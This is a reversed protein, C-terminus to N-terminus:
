DASLWDGGAVRASGLAGIFSDDALTAPNLFEQPFPYAHWSDKYTAANNKIEGLVRKELPVFIDAHSITILQDNFITSPVASFFTTNADANGQDLYNAQVPPNALTVVSRTQGELAPGASFVIAIASNAVGNLNLQPVTESNIPATMFGSSVAYWLPEGNGDVLKGTGLSRWPLRGIRLADTNCNSREQGENATGISAPDEPCPLRGPVTTHALAYGILAAKAEALAAATNDQQALKGSRADLYQYAFTTLTIALMFVLLMLAAGSQPKCRPVSMASFKVTPSM